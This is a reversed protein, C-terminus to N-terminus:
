DVTAVSQRFAKNRQTECQGEVRGNGFKVRECRTHSTRCRDMTRSLPMVSTQLALHFHNSMLCWALVMFGDRAKTDHLRDVFCIAEEPDAFVEEGRAFRSYVNYLGGEIM